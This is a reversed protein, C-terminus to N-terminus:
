PTNGNYVEGLRLLLRPSQVEVNSVKWLTGMWSVYRIAHFNEGLYADRVVSISNQIFIDDNVKEEDKLQRSNRVVDGSYTREVITETYVGPSSEVSADAFGIVGHFKAM